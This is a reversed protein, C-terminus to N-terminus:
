RFRRLVGMWEVFHLRIAHISPSLLGLRTRVQVGIWIFFFLVASLYDASSIADAMSHFGMENGIEAIKVGAVGVAMIRLYSLTNAFLGFTEIPGMIAGGLWGFKEYVALGYILCVVGVMVMGSWVSFEFTGYDGDTLFRLVHLVM